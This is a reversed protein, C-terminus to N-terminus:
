CRPNGRFSSSGRDTLPSVRLGLARITLNLSIALLNTMARELIRPALVARENRIKCGVLVDLWAISSVALRRLIGNGM